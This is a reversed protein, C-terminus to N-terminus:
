KIELINVTKAKYEKKGKKLISTVEIDAKIRLKGHIKSPDINKGLIFRVRNSVIGPVIGAWTKDNSEKDSAYIDVDVAIYKKVIESPQPIEYEEPSEDIFQRPITLEPLGAIEIIADKDEFAPSIADISQRALTKKDKVGKLISDIADKSINMTGGLQVIAGNYAQINNQPAKTPLANHIGFGIFSGIGLAVVTTLAKSTM